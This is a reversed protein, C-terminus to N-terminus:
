SDAGCRVGGEVSTRLDSLVLDFSFVPRTGTCYIELRCHTCWENASRNYCIGKCDDSLKFLRYRSKACGACYFGQIELAKAAKRVIYDTFSKSVILEECSVAIVENGSAIEEPAHSCYGAAPADIKINLSLAVEAKDVAVDSIQFMTSLYNELYIASGLSGPFTLLSIYGHKALKKLTRCVTSKSIGWRAALESYSVLPNGTGNRFYAVPGLSSGHVRDDCYVASTWLDLIIDMESCRTVSILESAVSVPLFFFGIDKQCPCNYDLVTNFRAWNQVSYKIVRDRGLLSFRILRRAQLDSLTDLVQQKTQVRLMDKLESILCVWEGPYVTYSIGCLRRYATRFNAHSCLVTYHFLVSEGNVRIGKDAILSQIFERYIRCRPYDVSQKIELKYEQMQISRLLSYQKEPDSTAFLFSTDAFLL